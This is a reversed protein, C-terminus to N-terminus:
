GSNNRNNYKSSYMLTVKHMQQIRMSQKSTNLLKIAAAPILQIETWGVEWGAM